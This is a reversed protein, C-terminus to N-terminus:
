KVRRAQRELGKLTYTWDEEVESFDTGGGPYERFALRIGNGLHSLEGDSLEQRTWLTRTATGHFSVLAVTLQSHSAGFRKGWVLLRPGIGSPIAVSRVFMAHRRPFARYEAARRFRGARQAYVELMPVTDPAGDGGVWILWTVLLVRNPPGALEIVQPHRGTVDLGEGEKWPDYVDRLRAELATASSAPAANLTRATLRSLLVSLQQPGGAAMAREYPELPAGKTLKLDRGLRAIAARDDEPAQARPANLAGLAFLAACTLTRPTLM